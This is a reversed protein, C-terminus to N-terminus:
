SAIVCDTSWAVAAGSPITGPELWPCEKAFNQARTRTRFPVSFDTIYCKSTSTYYNFLGHVTCIPGVGSSQFIRFHAQSIKSDNQSVNLKGALKITICFFKKRFSTQLQFSGTRLFFHCRLSLGPSHQMFIKFSKTTENCM